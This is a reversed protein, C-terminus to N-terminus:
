YLPRLIFIPKASLQLARRATSALLRYGQGLCRCLRGDCCSTRSHFILSLSTWRSMSNKRLIRMQLCPQHVYGCKRRCASKCDHAEPFSKHFTLLRRFFLLGSPSDWMPSIPSTKPCVLASSTSWCGHEKLTTEGHFRMESLAAIGINYTDLVRAIVATNRRGLQNGNDLLTRINWSAERLRRCPKSNHQRGCYHIDLRGRNTQLILHSCAIDVPMKSPEKEPSSVATGDM